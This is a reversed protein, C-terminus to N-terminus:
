QNSMINLIVFTSKYLPADINCEYIVFANYKTSVNEMSTTNVRILLNLEIWNM